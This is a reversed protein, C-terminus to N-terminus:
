YIESTCIFIPLNFYRDMDLGSSNLDNLSRIKYFRKNYYGHTKSSAIECSVFNYYNRFHTDFYESNVCTCSIKVRMTKTRFEKM